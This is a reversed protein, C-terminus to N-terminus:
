THNYNFFLVCRCAIKVPSHLKGNDHGVLIEIYVYLFLPFLEASSILCFGVGGLDWIQQKHYFQKAIETDRNHLSDSLDVLSKRLGGLKEKEAARKKQGSRQM